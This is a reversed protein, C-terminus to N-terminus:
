DVGLTRRSAKSPHVRGEGHCEWCQNGILRGGAKVIGGTGACSGCTMKEREFTTEARANKVERQIEAYRNASAVSQGTAESEMEAHGLINDLMTERQESTLVIGMEPIAEDVFIRWYERNAM